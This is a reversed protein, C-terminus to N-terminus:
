ADSTDLLGLGFRSNGKSKIGIIILIILLYVYFSYSIISINYFSFAEENDNSSSTSPNIDKNKINEKYHKVGKVYGIVNYIFIPLPFLLIITIFVVLLLKLGDKEFDANRRDYDDSKYYRIYKGAHIICFIMTLGLLICYPIQILHYLDLRGNCFLQKENYLDIDRKSSNKSSVFIKNSGLVGERIALTIIFLFVILNGLTLLM